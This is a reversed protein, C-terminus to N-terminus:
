TQTFQLDRKTFIPGRGLGFSPAQNEWRVTNGQYLSQIQEMTLRVGKSAIKHEGDTTIAGYIKPAIIWAESLKGEVAWEGLKDGIPLTKTDRCIISDTDWYVPNDVTCIARILNARALGTISASTAVNIYRDKPDPKAWIRKDNETDGVWHYEPDVAVGINEILYTKYRRPNIGFKGYVSNLLIKYLHRKAADGEKEAKLKGAFGFEVFSKFNTVSHFNISRIMTYDKILGCDLAAKLEWNTIHYITTGGKPYTLRGNERVPLLGCGDAQIVCFYNDTTPEVAIEIQPEWPHDFTMAYPYSSNIDVYTYDKYHGKRYGVMGGKYYPRILEDLSEPISPIKYGLERMKNIGVSALTMKSLTLEREYIELWNWLAICDQRLYEIIKIRNRRRNEKELVTYDFDTDKEGSRSLPSPILCYSDLLTAKGIKMKAIRNGIMFIDDAYDLLYFFDFRGGNHAYVSIKQKRVYKAYRKICKKGWFTRFGRPTYHGIVFPKPVRDSQFPDTEMDMSAYM